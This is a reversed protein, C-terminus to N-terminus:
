VVFHLKSGNIGSFNNLYGTIEIPRQSVHTLGRQRLAEVGQGPDKAFGEGSVLLETAVVLVESSGFKLEIGGTEEVTLEGAEFWEM